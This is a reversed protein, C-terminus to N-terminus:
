VSGILFERYTTLLYIANEILLVPRLFHSNALPRKKVSISPNQTLDDVPMM